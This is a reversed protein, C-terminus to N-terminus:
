RHTRDNESNVARNQLPEIVDVFAAVDDGCFLTVLRRGDCMPPDMQWDKAQCMNFAKVVKAAAANAAIAEALSKGDYTRVLFDGQMVNPVPNHVKGAFAGPGGAARMADFVVEHRPWCSWTVSPPPRRKRVSSRATASSTRWCEKM